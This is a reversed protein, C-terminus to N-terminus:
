YFGVLGHGGINEAAGFRAAHVASACAVGRWNFARRRDFDNRFRGAHSQEADTQAECGQFAAAALRRDDCDSAPAQTCVKAEAELNKFVEWEAL